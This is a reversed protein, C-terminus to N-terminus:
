VIRVMISRSPPRAPTPTSCRTLIDADSDFAAVQKDTPNMVVFVAVEV